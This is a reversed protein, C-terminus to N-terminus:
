KGLLLDSYSCNILDEKKIEFKTKYYNLQSELRAYNISDDESIAEIETFRGLGKVIDLHFKVNEIFYIERRKDVIIKIGLSIRLIEELNSNPDSEYLLIKSEKQNATEKRQYHILFNEIEGKRLKLRGNQINFYIDTQNDIGKFEAGEKKLIERIIEQKKESCRAKIELNFHKM